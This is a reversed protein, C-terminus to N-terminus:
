KDWEWCRSNEKRKFSRGIQFQTYELPIYITESASYLCSNIFLEIQVLKIYVLYTKIIKIHSKMIGAFHPFKFPIFHCETWKLETLFLNELLFQFNIRLLQFIQKSKTMCGRHLEASPELFNTGNVFYIKSKSYIIM